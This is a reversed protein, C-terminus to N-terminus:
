RTQEPGAPAAYPWRGGIAGSLARAHDAVLARFRALATADIRFTPGTVSIAGAIAGGAGYIPAAVATVDPELTKRTAAVGSADVRGHLADGIATGDSPISRGLWSMHRIAHASVNQRLYMATGDDGLVAFNSTEGTTESLAKLHPEVLDHLEVGHLAAVAIRILRSGHTYRGDPLRRLIDEAELTDLQRKVTTTALGSARAFDTLTAQPRRADLCELLRFARQISRVGGAEAEARGPADAAARPRSPQSTAM